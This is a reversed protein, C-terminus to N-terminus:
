KGYRTDQPNLYNIVVPIVAVVAITGLEKLSSVQWIDVGEQIKILIGSLVAVLAAKVWSGAPSNFFKGM